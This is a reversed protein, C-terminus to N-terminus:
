GGAIVTLMWGRHWGVFRAALLRLVAGGVPAPRDADSSATAAREHARSVQAFLTLAPGDNLEALITAFATVGPPTWDERIGTVVEHLLERASHGRRSNASDARHPLRHLVLTDLLALRAASIDTRHFKSMLGTSKAKGLALFSIPCRLRRCQEQTFVSV